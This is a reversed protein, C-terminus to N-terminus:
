AGGYRWFEVDEVYDIFDQLEVAATWAIVYAEAELITRYGHRTPDCALGEEADLRGVYEPDCFDLQEPMAAYEAKVREAWIDDFMAACGMVFMTEANM